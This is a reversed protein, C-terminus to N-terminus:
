IKMRVKPLRTGDLNRDQADKRQGGVDCAIFNDVGNLAMNTGAFSGWLSALDDRVKRQQVSTFVVHNFITIKKFLVNLLSPLSLM